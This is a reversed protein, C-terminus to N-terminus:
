CTYVRQVSQISKRCVACETLKSACPQCYAFHFCPLLIYEINRNFCVKCKTREDETSLKKNEERCLYLEEKLKENENMWHVVELEINSLREQCNMRLIVEEDNENKNRYLITQFEALKDKHRQLKNTLDQIFEDKQNNDRLSQEHESRLKINDQLVQEVQIKVTELEKRLAIIEDHHDIASTLNVHETVPSTVTSSHLSPSASSSSSLSPSSTPSVFKYSVQKEKEQQERKKKKVMVCTPVILSKIPPLQKMQNQEDKISSSASLAALLDFKHQEKMTKVPHPTSSSTSSTSPKETIIDSQRTNSLSKKKEQKQDLYIDQSVRTHIRHQPRPFAVENAPLIWSCKRAGDVSINKCVFQILNNKFRMVVPRQCFCDPLKTPPELLYSNTLHFVTCYTFNYLPCTRLESFESNVTHGKKLQERFENWSREHVHFGCIFKSKISTISDTITSPDQLSERQSPAQKNDNNDADISTKYSHRKHLIDDNFDSLSSGVESHVFTLWENNATENMSNCNPTFKSDPSF